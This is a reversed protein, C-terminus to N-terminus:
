VNQGKTKDHDAVEDSIVPRRVFSMAPKSLTLRLLRLPPIRVTRM